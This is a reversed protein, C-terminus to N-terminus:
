DREHTIGMDGIEQEQRVLVLDVCDRSPIRRQGVLGAVIGRLPDEADVPRRGRFGPHSAAVLGLLQLGGGEVPSGQAARRLLEPDRLTQDLHGDLVGALPLLESLRDSRELRDLM